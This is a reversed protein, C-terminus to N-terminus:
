RMASVATAPGRFPHPNSNGEMPPLPAHLVSPGNGNGLHIDHASLMARGDMDSYSQHAQLHPEMETTTKMGDAALKRERGGQIKIKWKKNNINITPGRSQLM